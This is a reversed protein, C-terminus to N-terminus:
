EIILGEPRYTPFVSIWTKGVNIELPSGDEKFYQTPEYHSTKEWTIPMYKGQSIYYGTGVTSLSMDLRGETDGPIKWIEALQVLINDFSLQEGTEVDIHPGGFQNRMYKHSEEDYDFWAYQYYSYDLTVKLAKEGQELGQVEDAFKFKNTFGENYSERYDEAEWAKM